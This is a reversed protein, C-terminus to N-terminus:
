VSHKLSESQKKIFYRISQEGVAKRMRDKLQEDREGTSHIEIRHMAIFDVENFLEDDTWEVHPKSPPCYNLYEEKKM